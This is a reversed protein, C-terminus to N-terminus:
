SLDLNRQSSYCPLLKLLSNSSFCPFHKNKTHERSFEYISSTSIPDLRGARYPTGTLLTQGKDAVLAITLLQIAQISLVSQKISWIRANTETSSINSITGYFAYNM